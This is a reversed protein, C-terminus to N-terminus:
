AKCSTKRMTNKPGTSCARRILFYIPPTLSISLLVSSTSCRTTNTKYPRTVCFLPMCTSRYGFIPTPITTNCRRLFSLFFSSCLTSPACPSTNLLNNPQCLESKRTKKLHGHQDQMIFSCVFYLKEHAKDHQAQLLFANSYSQNYSNRCNKQETRGVKVVRFPPALLELSGRDIRAPLRAWACCGSRM